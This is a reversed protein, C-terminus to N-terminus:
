RAEAVQAPVSVEPAAPGLREKVAAYKQDLQEWVATLQELRADLAQTWHDERVAELKVGSLRYSLADLRLPVAGLHIKAALIEAGDELYRFLENLVGGALTVRAERTALRVSGTEAEVMVEPDELLARLFRCGHVSQGPEKPVVIESLEDAEPAEDLWPAKWDAAVEAQRLLALVLGLWAKATTGVYLIAGDLVCEIVHIRPAQHVILEREALERLDKRKKPGVYPAGTAERETAVLERLRERVAAPDPRRRDVRVRFAYRGKGIEYPAGPEFPIVGARERVESGPEIARFAVADFDPGEAPAAANFRTCAISGSLIGM